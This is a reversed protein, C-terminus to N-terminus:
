VAEDVRQGVLRKAGDELDLRGRSVLGRLLAVCAYFPAAMPWEVRRAKKAALAWAAAASPNDRESLATAWAGDCDALITTSERRTIAVSSRRSKPDNRSCRPRAM